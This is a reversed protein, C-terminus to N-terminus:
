ELEGARSRIRAMVDRIGTARATYEIESQYDRAIRAGVMLKGVCELERDCETLAEALGRLVAVKTRPSM